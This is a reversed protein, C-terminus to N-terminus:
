GAAEGYDARGGREFDESLLRAPRDGDDAAFDSDALPWPQEVDGAVPKGMAAEILRLLRTRRDRYFAHFDDSQLLEMSIRHSALAKELSESSYGGKEMLVGLYKSPARGGILKNTYAGIPSKNVISDTVDDPIGQRRCWARPFIHHIDIEENFYTAQQIPQLSLWELGEAIVLSYVGKYAASYRTRLIDIRNANFVADRITSPEAGRGQVWDVVEALDAAFRSESAGGYMEGLVGCWFWQKLKLIQLAAKLPWGLVALIASLPVLQSTYPISREDFIRQSHLFRAAYIFGDRVVPAFARYQDLPLALVEDKKASVGPVRGGRTSWPIQERNARFTAYLTVAQVFQTETIANLVQSAAVMRERHENWDKRLEFGEAAYTATLLEFTSLSVGATNVKTFIQCVTGRDIDNKLEILPFLYTKFADLITTQFEDLLSAAQDSWGHHQLFGRQWKASDFVLFTPFMMQEYEAEATSVDLLPEGRFSRVIRDPPIFCFAAERAWPDGVAKRMDIYFWGSTSKKGEHTEVPRPRMLTQYLSTLRQQGDLVLRWPSTSTTEAGEIPRPKFAVHPGGTQLLMLAGAPQGLSITTLLSRIHDVDWVWPRQFDPLQLQGKDAEQLLSHLSEKDISFSM